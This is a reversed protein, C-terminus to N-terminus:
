GKLTMIQMYPRGSGRAEVLSVSIAIAVAISSALIEGVPEPVAHLAELDIGPQAFSKCQAGQHHGEMVM